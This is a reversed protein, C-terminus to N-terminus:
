NEIFKVSELLAHFNPALSLSRGLDFTFYYGNAKVGYLFDSVNKAEKGGILTESFPLGDMVYYQKESAYIKINFYKKGPDLEIVTFDGEKKPAVLKWEPPHNFKLGLVASQFGPWNSHDPVAETSAQAIPLLDSKNPLNNKESDPTGATTEPNHYNKLMNASFAIVM